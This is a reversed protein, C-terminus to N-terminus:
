HMFPADGGRPAIGSNFFFGHDFPGAGTQRDLLRDRYLFSGGYVTRSSGYTNISDASYYSYGGRRQVFGSVQPARKRYYTSKPHESLQPGEQAKRPKGGAWADHNQTMAVTAIMVAAAFLYRM